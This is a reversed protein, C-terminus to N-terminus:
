TRVKPERCGVLHVFKQPASVNGSFESGQQSMAGCRRETKLSNDIRSEGFGGLASFNEAQMQGPKRTATRKGVGTNGNGM